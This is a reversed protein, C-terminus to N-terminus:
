PKGRSRNICTDMHACKRDHLANFLSRCTTYVTTRKRLFQSSGPLNLRGVTCMDFTAPLTGLHAEVLQPQKMMESGQPQELQFHRGESVQHMYLENCLQLHHKDAERENTMRDYATISRHMNYRAFSGWLRCEPAVWIHRPEYLRIWKWLQDVGEKTGLDGNKRSFRLAKGGHTNMQHTLQSEDECYM